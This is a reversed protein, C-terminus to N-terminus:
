LASIAHDRQKQLKAERAPSIRSRRKLLCGNPQRALQWCLIRMVKEAVAEAVKPVVANGFQRYAQTDSVVIKLKPDFGMLKKCEDPTLRRPNKGKQPILIESGDKHYRASLTRTRGQLDGLGFGFGNGAARHREAYAQLYKWLHDTLTYKPDVDKDLIESLKPKPGAPPMPFEFPPNEGFVDKDFCILFVRERHQPVWSEADIIKSFVVYNLNKLTSEIVGWTRGEDHSKLNKVNELMLVPPRKVEIISALYFFLTGQTADKFGHARGLSNKKSVGALSFPQCPFGAAMIDHDPVDSAKVDRIDGAPTHGFWAHYTKQAYKDWESSFVCEGGFKELGFRLGGIGAFLDIFKFPIKDPPVDARTIDDQPFDFLPLDDKSNAAKKLTSIVIEQKSMFSRHRESEIWTAVDPPVDRILMDPM